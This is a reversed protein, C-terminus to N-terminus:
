PHRKIDVLKRKKTIVIIRKASKNERFQKNIQSLAKDDQISTRSLDFIINQSQKAAIRFNNEITRSSKGKPSKIEWLLGKMRIDPTKTGRQRDSALFLIKENLVDVLIRATRKEHSEPYAGDQYAIKESYKTM